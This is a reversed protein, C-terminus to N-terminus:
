SCRACLGKLYFEREEVQYGGNLRVVPLAVEELCEVLGCNRCIFHPHCHGQQGCGCYIFKWTRDGGEIRHVIGAKWFSDLARYVSVKNIGSGRLRDSLEEQTLPKDVAMLIELLTERKATFKLGAEHLIEKIIASVLKM